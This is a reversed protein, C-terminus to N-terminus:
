KESQKRNKKYKDITKGRSISQYLFKAKIINNMNGYSTWLFQKRAVHFKDANIQPIKM